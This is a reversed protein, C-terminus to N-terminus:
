PPADPNHAAASARALQEGFVQGIAALTADPVGKRGLKLMGRLLSEETACPYSEGTNAICVALKPRSDFIM